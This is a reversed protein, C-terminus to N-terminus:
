GLGYTVDYDDYAEEGVCAALERRGVGCTSGNSDRRAGAHLTPM